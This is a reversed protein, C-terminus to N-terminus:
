FSHKNGCCPSYWKLSDCQLDCGLDLGSQGKSQMLRVAGHRPRTTSEQLIKRLTWTALFFSRKESYEIERM